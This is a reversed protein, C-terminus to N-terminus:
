SCVGESSTELKNRLDASRFMNYPELLTHYASKLFTSFIEFQETYYEKWTSYRKWILNKM